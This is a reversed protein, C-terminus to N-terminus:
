SSGAFAHAQVPVLAAGRQHCPSIGMEDRYEGPSFAGADSRGSNSPVDPEPMDFTVACPNEQLEARITDDLEASLQVLVRMMLIQLATLQIEPRIHPRLGLPM